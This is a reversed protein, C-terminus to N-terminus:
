KRKGTKKRVPFVLHRLSGTEQKFRTLIAVLLLLFLCCFAILWNKVITQQLTLGGFLTVTEAPCTPTECIVPAGAEQVVFFITIEAIKGARDIARVMLRHKGLSLDLLVYQAAEESTLVVVEGDDLFVDFHDIGSTADESIIYLLAYPRELPLDDEFTVTPAGPPTNDIRIIFHTTAGWGAETHARIHFYHIGDALDHFSVETDNGSRTTEPITEANDDFLYSFGDVDSGRNWTFTPNPDGYWREQDPHTPSSVTPAGPIGPVAEPVATITFAASGTGSLVNTGLGDNALISAGSFSLTATGVSGARVSLILFQGATGSYGPSPLGGAFSVSTGSMGPEVPWLSFLSAKRVSTITLNSAGITGNAANIPTAGANVYVGVSFTAGTQYSGASPSFFLTSAHAFAPFALLFAFATLFSLTSNRLKIM